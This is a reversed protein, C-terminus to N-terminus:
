VLVWGALARILKGRRAFRSPTLQIPQRGICATKAVLPLVIFRMEIATLCSFCPLPCLICDNKVWGLSLATGGTFASAVYLTPDATHRIHLHEDLLKTPYPADLLGHTCLRRSAM